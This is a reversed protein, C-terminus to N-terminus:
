SVVDAERRRANVVRERTTAGLAFWDPTVRMLRLADQHIPGLLDGITRCNNGCFCPPEYAAIM